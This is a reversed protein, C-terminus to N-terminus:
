THSAVPLKPSPFKLKNLYILPDRGRGPLIKFRKRWFLKVHCLVNKPPFSKRKNFHLIRGKGHPLYLNFVTSDDNDTPNEHPVSVWSNVNGCVNLLTIFQRANYTLSGTVWSIVSGRDLNQCDVCIAGVLLYSEVTTFICQRFKFITKELVTSGLKLWLQWLFDEYRWDVLPSSLFYM